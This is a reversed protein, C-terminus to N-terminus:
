GVSADVNVAIEENASIVMRTSDPTNINITRIFDELASQLSVMDQFAKQQSTGVKEILGAVKQEENSSKRYVRVIYSEM